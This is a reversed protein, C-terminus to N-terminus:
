LLCYIPLSADYPCFDVVHVSSSSRQSSSRRKKMYCITCRNSRDHTTTCLILKTMSKKCKQNTGIKHGCESCLFKICM